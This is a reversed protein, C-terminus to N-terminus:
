PLEELERTLEELGLKKALRVNDFEFEGLDVSCKLLEEFVLAVLYNKRDRREYRKKKIEVNIFDEEGARIKPLMRLIKDKDGWVPLSLQYSSSGVVGAYLIEPHLAQIVRAIKEKKNRIEEPLKLNYWSRESWVGEKPVRQMWGRAKSLPNTELKASTGEGAIHFPAQPVQFAFRLVATTGSTLMLYVANRYLSVGYLSKLGEPSRLIGLADAFTERLFSLLRITM